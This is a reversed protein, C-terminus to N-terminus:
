AHYHNANAHTKLVFTSERFPQRYKLSLSVYEVLRSKLASKAKEDREKLENIKKIIDREIGFDVSFAVGRTLNDNDNKKRQDAGVDEPMDGSSALVAYCTLGYPGKPLKNGMKSDDTKTSASMNKRGTRMAADEDTSDISLRGSYVAGSSERKRADNMIKWKRTEPPYMEPNIAKTLISMWDQTQQMSDACMVCMTSGKVLIEFVFQNPYKRSDPLGYLNKSDVKRVEGVKKLNWVGKPKGGIDDLEWYYM